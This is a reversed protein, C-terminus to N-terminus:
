KPGLMYPVALLVALVASSFYLNGEIGMIHQFYYFFFYLATVSIAGAIVDKLRM